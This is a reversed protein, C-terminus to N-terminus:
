GSQETYNDIAERPWTITVQAGTGGDRLNAFSLQARNRELLTKAIFLGLGMGGAGPESVHSRTSIFPEGIRGLVEHSVGPGDDTIKISVTEADWQANVIVKRNAFDVANEMLNGLGYMVGPNRKGVPQSQLDGAIEVKIEVGFNRHPEVVEEIMSTIPLRGMHADEHESMSTLKQLIDRCRRAQSHMLQADESLPHKDGIERLMEKSVLAITALPTGLEHAAAAALGDLASLHQERQLVLETASLADSLRRAEDAVRYTYVAVFILSSVIAVWTGAIYLFPTELRLGSKWPLPEHYYVLITAIIVVLVGLVFSHWLSHITASIIVPVVLLMSFPNQLGGTLYLLLGLQIIDYALLSLIANDTPRFGAPYRLTLFINLWVSSAILAGCLLFPFDFKLGYAIFIVALSQGAVALWRVKILTQLLLLQRNERQVITIEQM